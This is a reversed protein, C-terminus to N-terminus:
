GNTTLRRPKRQPLYQWFRFPVHTWVGVILRALFWLVVNRAAIITSSVIALGLPGHETAAVWGLGFLLAATALNVILSIRDHGTMSLTLGCTGTWVNVIQGVALVVLVTSAERYFDGFLLGLVSQPALLLVLLGAVTPLAVLAAAGQLMRQLEDRRGQVHLYPISSVVARNALLLAIGLLLIIRRAAGFLALDNGSFAGAAIWIDCQSTLFALVQVGMAPLGVDLLDRYAYYQTANAIDSAGALQARIQKRMVWAAAPMVSLLAVANLLLIAELTIPAALLAPALLMGLFVLNALPGGNQGALLNSLRMEHFGRLAEALLQQAAVLLVLIGILSALPLGVSIPLWREGWAAMGFVVAVAVVVISVAALKGTRQLGSAVRAAEGRALGESVLRLVARNLGAMAALSATPIVSAILIFAGFVTPELIRALVVHIGLLAAVGCARGIAAWIGGSILRRRLLRDPEPAAADASAQIELRDDDSPKAM